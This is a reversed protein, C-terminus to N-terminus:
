YYQASHFSITFVGPESELLDFTDTPYKLKRILDALSRAIRAKMVANQYSISYRVSRENGDNVARMSICVRCSTVAEVPGTLGVASQGSAIQNSTLDVLWNLTEAFELLHHPLLLDYLELKGYYKLLSLVATTLFLFITVAVHWWHFILSTTLELIVVLSMLFLAVWQSESFGFLFLRISDARLFEFFFRGFGYAIVYWSLVEGPSSGRVTWVISIVSMFLLWGSELLQVPFLRVGQLYNAYGVSAHRDGYSAGIMFPRGHCCGVMFCGIRGNVQGLCLGITLLDLYPLLPKKLLFLVFATSTLIAIQYHYIGSAAWIFILSLPKGFIEVKPVFQGFLEMSKFILLVLIVAVLLLLTMTVLSLDCIVTLIMVSTVGVVIGIIQWLLYTNWRREFLKISPRAIRDLSINIFYWLSEAPILTKQSRNM